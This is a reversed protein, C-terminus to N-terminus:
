KGQNWEDFFRMFDALWVWSLNSDDFMTYMMKDKLSARVPSFYLEETGDTVFVRMDDGAKNKGVEVCLVDNDGRDQLVFSQPVDVGNEKRGSYECRNDLANRYALTYVNEPRSFVSKYNGDVIDFTFFDKSADGDKSKLFVFKMTYQSESLPTDSADTLIMDKLVIARGTFGLVGGTFDNSVYEGDSVYFMDRESKKGYGLFTLNNYKVDEAPDPPLKKFLMKTDGLSVPMVKIASDILINGYADSVGELYDKDVMYRSFCLGPFENTLRANCLERDSSIMKNGNWGYVDDGAPRRPNDKWPLRGVIITGGNKHTSKYISEYELPIVISDNETVVGYKDASNKASYYKVDSMTYIHEKSVIDTAFKPAEDQLPSVAATGNCSGLAAIACILFTKVIRGRMTRKLVQNIYHNCLYYFTDFRAM